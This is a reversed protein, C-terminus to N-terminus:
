VLRCTMCLALLQDKPDEDNNIAINGQPGVLPTFGTHCRGHGDWSDNSQWHHCTVHGIRSELAVIHILSPGFANVYILNRIELPLGFLPSQRQSYPVGVELPATWQLRPELRDPITM